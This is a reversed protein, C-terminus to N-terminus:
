PPKAPVITVTIPKGPAPQAPPPLRHSEITYFVTVAAAVSAAAAVLGKVLRNRWRRFADPEEEYRTGAVRDLSRAIERDRDDM